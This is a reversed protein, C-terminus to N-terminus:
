SALSGGGRCGQAAAPADDVVVKPVLADLTPAEEAIERQHLRYQRRPTVAESQTHADDVAARQADDSMSIHSSFPSLWVNFIRTDWQLLRVGHNREEQHLPPHHHLRPRQSGGGPTYLHKVQHHTGKNSRYMTHITTPDMHLHSLVLGVKPHSDQHLNFFANCSLM